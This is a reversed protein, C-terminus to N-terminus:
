LYNLQYQRLLSFLYREIQKINISISDNDCSEGGVQYSKRVNNEATRRRDDTRHLQNKLADVGQDPMGHGGGLGQQCYMAFREGDAGIQVLSSLLYDEM